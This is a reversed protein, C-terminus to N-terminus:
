RSLKGIYDSPNGVRNSGTVQARESWASRRKSFSHIDLPDRRLARPRVIQFKVELIDKRPIVEPQNGFGKMSHTTNPIQRLLSWYSFSRICPWDRGRHYPGKDGPTVVRPPPCPGPWAWAHSKANM